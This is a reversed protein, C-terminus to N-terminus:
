AGAPGEASLRLGVASYNDQGPRASGAVQDRMRAVWDQVDSAAALSRVLDSGDLREWWGDSCLLFADGDQLPLPEECVHVSGLDRSGLAQLLQNKKPHTRAEQASLMGADVLQQVLSDDRTLQLAREGRLLYLRSDGLHAWLALGRELDLWLAVGTAHMRLHAPAAGQERLLAQHAQTLALSLPERAFAESRQLALAVTRVVIDSAMQGHGHGGAGDSLVAFHTNRSQGIRLDDENRSRGGVESCTTIELHLM